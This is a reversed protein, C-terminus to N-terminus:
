DSLNPRQVRWDRRHSFPDWDLRGTSCFAGRSGQKPHQTRADFAHFHSELCAVVFKNMAIDQRDFQVGCVGHGVNTEWRVRHLFISNDLFM